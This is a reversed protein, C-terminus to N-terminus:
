YVVAEATRGSGALANLAHSLLQVGRELEAPTLKQYAKQV